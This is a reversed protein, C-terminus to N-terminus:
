APSPAADPDDDGNGNSYDEVEKLLSLLTQLDKIKKLDVQMILKQIIVQKGGSSSGDGEATDTDESSRDGGINVKAVPERQLAVKAKQLGQEMADAPADQALTLGHAYTTMTRQGSLTLTSLPGEKADSFPLLNRIKQLGGKVADVAGSFASRIGNAFTSVIKKGSDFFWTVAGTVTNKINGLGTMFASGAETFKQGIGQVIGSMTSTFKGGIESLKGGTLNDLFTFGATYYGKVGEMAAAAIGQVGGGHQEYATRMNGLKESVTAGAADLISGVTGTIPSLKESFKDKIATLKGGTLNDLFNYGAGFVGKVGEVTAAAAGRIGGGNEEYAAKLGDLKGGTLSNLTNFGAETIGRVGEMTAAAVGRIGGGNEEYVAKLEGLRQAAADKLGSLKGGTLNDLFTYGATYVGKVGEMAAAAAGRIGGGHEEYARKMNDLKEQVTAKAAGLVRGIVGGIAGFINRAVELAAGLKEKFFGLIANVGNRFWECKNYLLVLAAILAVIGIVIWTVPNALLAATFSWVSGILPALAGKALLFGAKLIKFASVAKTIVLGVGGVVAIVTGAVTLFGGIALVILMIIKVLEKNEEIWSAVKTLVQEGKGMLDNVTPLLSNGISETVNHIRQQLRAFREPETEQIASAMDQAVGTGQGMADYLNLINDQLDGTKSYLLDILAVAETDGFAKQLEMKEAADMTEGFKGRLQELIEPMSLLQNNADLFSLGLAEGGKAASRLFAKYKTGAEAGGMTAQLMGLIALQEELPVNATTASAGLSQIGQAMGTGSTKFARVSEAIGASFMEGFQIDTLDDYYGKYIGYGTAFLSTMESATSKTAKATLAALATFEAVGEDSLSSIGSKIDYAASIFDAKTTGSWQDSFNRAASELADLDEVGLSALEGLARRTEFTAEVPALVASTIQSGAGQMATGAKIFGGFTQGLADLKSVDAGVRSAIGALPGSLHDVMNMVLSLKFISELSM